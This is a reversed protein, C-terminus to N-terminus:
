WEFGSMCILQRDYSKNVEDMEESAKLDERLQQRREESMFLAGILFASFALGTSALQDQESPPPLPVPPGVHISQEQCNGMVDTIHQQQISQYITNQVKAHERGMFAMTELWREYVRKYAPSEACRRMHEAKRALEVEENHRMAEGTDIHRRDRYM